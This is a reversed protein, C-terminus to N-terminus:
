RMAKLLQRLRWQGLHWDNTRACHSCSRCVSSRGTSYKWTTNVTGWSTAAIAYWVLGHHVVNQKVGRGLRQVGNGSVGFMQAGLDAADGDQVGPPLVQQMVRMQVTHNRAAPYGRVTHM